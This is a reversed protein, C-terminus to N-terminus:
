RVCCCVVLDSLHTRPFFSLKAVATSVNIKESRRLRTTHGKGRSHVAIGISDTSGKRSNRDSGCLHIPRLRPHITCLLVRLRLLFHAVRATSRAPPPVASFWLRPPSCFFAHCCPLRAKSCLLTHIECPRAESRREKPKEKEQTSLDCSTQMRPHLEAACVPSRIARFAKRRTEDDTSYLISPACTVAKSTM